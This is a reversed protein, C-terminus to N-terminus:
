ITLIENKTKKKIIRSYHAMMAFFMLAIIIFVFLILFVLVLATILTKM